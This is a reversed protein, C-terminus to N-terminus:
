HKSKGRVIKHCQVCSIALQTYALTAGDLNKDKAAQVLAGNAFGFSQMQERYRPTDSRAWSELYGMFQMAEANVRILEFDEKTLGELIRQSATIKQRMWISQEQPKRVLREARDAAPQAQAPHGNLPLFSFGLVFVSLTTLQLRM